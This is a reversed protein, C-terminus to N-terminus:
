PTVLVTATRTRGNRTATIFRTRTGTVALTSVTFTVQKKTIPITVSSPVIVEPGSSTLNVIFDAAAGGNAVVTGVADTGGVITSPEVKVSALDAPYITLNRTKQLLGFTAKIQRTTEVRNVGTTIDFTAQTSGEPITVSAPCRIFADSPTLQITAGGEPAPHSISVTGTAVNGCVIGSPSINFEYELKDITVADVFLTLNRGVEIGQFRLKASTATPIFMPASMYTWANATSAMVDAKVVTGDIMVNLKAPPTADFRKSVAFRISYPHGKRLGRLVREIYGDRQVFAFQDGDAASLSMTPVRAIGAGRDSVKQGTMFWETGAGTSGYRFTPVPLIPIEFSGNLNALSDSVEEITIDDILSGSPGAPNWYFAQFSLTASSNAPRFATTEHPSWSGDTSIGGGSIEVGDLSVSVAAANTALNFGPHAQWYKVKYLRGPILGHITQSMSVAGDPDSALYACQAGTHANPAWTTAGNAIGSMISMNWVNGDPQFVLSDTPVVVNEFGADSLGGGSAM